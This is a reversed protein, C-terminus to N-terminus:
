KKRFKSRKSSKPSFKRKGLNGSNNNTAGKKSKKRKARFDDIVSQDVDDELLKAYEEAAAFATPAGDLDSDDDSDLEDDALLMAELQSESPDNLMEDEDEEQDFDFDDYDFEQPSDEDDSVGGLLAAEEDLLQDQVEEGDEEGDSESDSDFRTVNTKEKEQKTARKAQFYHHFFKQALILLWNISHAM